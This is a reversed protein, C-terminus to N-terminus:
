FGFDDTAEDEMTYEHIISGGVIVLADPEFGTAATKVEEHFSFGTSETEEGKIAKGKVFNLKFEYGQGLECGNEITEPFEVVMNVPYQDANDTLTMQNENIENVLMKVTLNTKTEAFKYTKGKSNYLLVEEDEGIEHKVRKAFKGMLSVEVRLKGEDDIKSSVKDFQVVTKGKDFIAPAIFAGLYFDENKYNEIMTRFETIGAKLKEKQEDTRKAVYNKWLNTTLFVSVGEPLRLIATYSTGIVDETDKKKIEREAAYVVKGVLYGKQEMAKTM